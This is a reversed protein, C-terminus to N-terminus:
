IYIYIKKKDTIKALLENNNMHNAYKELTEMGGKSKCGGVLNLEDYKEVHSDACVICDMIDNEM